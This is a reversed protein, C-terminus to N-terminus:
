RQTLREIEELLQAGEDGTLELWSAWIEERALERVINRQDESPVILTVGESVRMEVIEDNEEVELMEPKLASETMIALFIDRIDDPLADLATNSVMLADTGQAIEWVGISDVYDFFGGSDAFATSTILGDILNTALSTYVESFSIPVPTGGMLQVLQALEANYTRIKYGALSDADTVEFGSTFFRQPSCPIMHVVSANWREDLIKEYFGTKEHQFDGWLGTLVNWSEMADVPLLLPMIDAGFIPDVSNVYGGYFHALEAAGDGLAKLMDEGEYPHQGSWFTTIKLRGDTAREIEDFLQPWIVACAGDEPGYSTYFSWNFVAESPDGSGADTGSGGCGALSASLALVIAVSLFLWKKHRKM